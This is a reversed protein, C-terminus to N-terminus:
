DRRPPLLATWNEILVPPRFERESVPRTFFFQRGDPSPEYDLGPVAALRRATGFVIEGGRREVGVAMLVFGENREDDEVYVIEGHGIWRPSLGGGPSVLYRAGTRPVPEVFVQDRGSEDSVYAIARGDPAFRGSHEAAATAAFDSVRASGDAPVLVLNSREGLPGTEVLITAGDPSWDIPEHLFPDAWVEREAGGAAPRVLLRPGSAGFTGYAISRGDPSWVPGNSRPEPTLRSVVGRALDRIWIAGRRQEDLRVTALRSGDPSLDLNGDGPEGVTEVLEGARDLRVLQQIQDRSPVHYLLAGDLSTSVPPLDYQAVYEVDTAITWADASVELKSLDLRRAVLRREQVALLLDPPSFRVATDIALVRRKLKGDLSGVYVGAREERESKVLYLFREGGPLWQPRLHAFEGAERDLTTVNSAEGGSAAVRQIVGLPDPAFLITGDEGWSAGRGDRVPALKQPPQLGGADVRSLWDHFFLIARGDPSWGPEYAGSTGPLEQVRDFSSVALVSEGRARELRFVIRTGDPSLMVPGDGSGFQGDAPPLVHLRRVAGGATRSPVNPRATWVIAAGFTAAVLGVAAFSLWRRSASGGPAAAPELEAPRELVVRAEGIDRLRRKPDRELCRALLRRVAPPTAAPLRSLDIDARLVGALTEPVTDGDFLRRGSLMEVLVVGFAWVDARKDVAFGKAQEPAMYAATGLIVGQVTAGLTLTPSAALQSASAAGSATGAPDMAKALGFDLVKVKGERSAKVNQPKLDRHIIGKEHAEELAEAIQRAIPLCEELPLAGKELREALTPGEVLEMVLARIDGSTELGYVHAINPHNLQALLKAEREFRQLREPDETFGEPLVKLAVERGLHFDKAKFVVGMGGEGLKATIEYPGLRSGPALTV